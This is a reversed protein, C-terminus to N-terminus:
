GNLEALQAEFQRELSECIDKAQDKTVVLSLWHDNPEREVGIVLRVLPGEKDLEEVWVNVEVKKNHHPYITMETSAM